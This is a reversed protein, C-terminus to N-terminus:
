LRYGNEDNVVFFVRPSYLGSDTPNPCVQDDRISFDDSGFDREVADLECHVLQRVDPIAGLM